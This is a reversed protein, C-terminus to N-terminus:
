EEFLNSLDQSGAEKTWDVPKKGDVRSLLVSTSKIIDTLNQVDIRGINEKNEIDLVVRESLAIMRDTLAELKEKSDM